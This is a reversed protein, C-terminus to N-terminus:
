DEKVSGWLAAKFFLLAAVIETGPEGSEWVRERGATISEAIEVHVRGYIQALEALCEDDVEGYFRMEYEDPDAGFIGTTAAVGVDALLLRVIDRSFQRRVAPWSADGPGITLNLRTAYRREIVGRRRKEDTVEVFGAAVLADIHHRIRRPSERLREAVQRITANPREALAIIVKSRVPHSLAEV